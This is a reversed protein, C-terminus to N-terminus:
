DIDRGLSDPSTRAHRSCAVSDSRLMALLVFLTTLISTFKRRCRRNLPTTLLLERNNTTLRAVAGSRGKGGEEPPRGARYMETRRRINNEQQRGGERGREAEREGAGTRGDAGTPRAPRKGKRGHQAGRRCRGRRRNRCKCDLRARWRGQGHVSHATLSCAPPGLGGLCDVVLLVKEGWTQPGEKEEWSLPRIGYCFTHVSSVQPRTRHTKPGKWTLRQATEGITGTELPM